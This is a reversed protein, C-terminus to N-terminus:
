RQTFTWTGSGIRYTAHRDNRDVRQAATSTTIEADPRLLPVVVTATSNAPILVELEVASGDRHWRSVIEGRVTRLTACVTTLSGVLAPAIRIRDFAVADPDQRIGALGHTFWSPLGGLINLDAVGERGNWEWSEPLSTAGHEIWYGYSPYSTQVAVDYLVDHRGADTLVRVIAPLGIMGATLHNGSARINEVLTALVSERLEKPPAGMDLALATATQSGRGYTATAPDFFKQHYVTAIAEAKGRYELAHDAQNLAAAIGAMATAIKWYGWAETMEPPTFHANDPDFPHQWHQGPYMWDGFYGESIDGPPYGGDRERSRLLRFYQRMGAYHRRLAATDGYRRYSEYAQVIPAGSWNIDGDYWFDTPDPVIGPLDGDPRQADFVERLMAQNYSAFDYRHVGSLAFGRDAQWGAKERNPDTPMTPAIMASRMSREAIRDIANLLPDSCDFAATAAVAARVAIGTVSSLNPRTPLGRIELYRFGHYGFRPHWAEVGDGALTYHDAVVVNPVWGVMGSQSVRGNDLYWGPFLGIRTGAPGEVEIRPWGVFATGFDFVYVGPEPESMEVAPLWEAEVVAPEFQASLTAPTESAVDAYRWGSHDGDPRDWGSPWRRADFDEGGYYGSFDLPGDDVRWTSDSAVRQVTGDAYRIELQAIVKPEGSLRVTEGSGAVGNKWTVSEWYRGEREPVNFFGNGVLMGVVNDGPRLHETVDYTRYLARKRYDTVSPTLVDAGVKRGNLRAEYLGLGSVYLRAQEIRRQPPVSFRKAFIPLPGQERAAPSAGTIWKATWDAPELLGMEWRAIPSWASERDDNTWVRVQWFGQARSSLPQGEYGIDVQRDSAVPGSDWLDPRDLALLEPTSAARIRYASQVIDRHASVLRWGLAPTPDDIGRPDVLYNVTLGAVVVANSDM